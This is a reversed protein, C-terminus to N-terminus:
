ESDNVHYRCDFLGFYRRSQMTKLTMIYIYWGKCQFNNANIVHCKYGSPCNVGTCANSGAFYCIVNKEIELFTITKACLARGPSMIQSADFRLGFVFVVSYCKSQLCVRM